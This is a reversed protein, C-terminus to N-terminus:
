GMLQMDVIDLRPVSQEGFASQYTEIGDVIAWLEVNDNERFRPSGTWVGWIYHETTFTDSALVGIFEQRDETNVDFNAISVNQYYVAEGKYASFNRDLEGYPITEANEKVEQKTPGTFSTGADQIDDVCGAFLGGGLGILLGRRYM